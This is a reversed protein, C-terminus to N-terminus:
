FAGRNLVQRLAHAMDKLTVPKKLFVVDSLDNLKKGLSFYGSCLVIPMEPRLERIKRTLDDGTMLPMTYDTIVVDVAAPNEMFAALASLGSLFGRVQYGLGELREKGSMVLAEEDDVFLVRESGRPLAETEKEEEAIGTKSDLAPFLLTLTTGVGPESSVDINGDLSKVIGHVVSLGLGTGEGQPKTTFFPDFIRDLIEAPIGGGTDSIKLRLYRGPPLDTKQTETGEGTIEDLTVDLVGGTEKMAYGANTCLNVIVQHIQTPDGLIAATSELHERIAITAPLSARLLKLAEKVVYKPIIPKQGADSKRSFALIHNVLDRARKAANLIETLYRACRASDGLSVVTLETYGFVASLINNFDHAIGGALTGIAEMKESQRIRDQMMLERTMDRGIGLFCSIGGSSDLVPTIALDMTFRTSDSRGGTIRGGWKKKELVTKWVEEQNIPDIGDLPLHKGILEPISSDIIAAMAPNAFQVKRDPGIIIFAEDAQSVAQSLTALTKQVPVSVSRSFFFVSLVTLGIFLGSVLFIVNRNAYALAMIEDKDQTVGVSWGTLEVPAFGAIKRIGLYTYEETGTEQEAMRSTLVEVGADNQYGHTLILEANPHAIIMGNKDLMFAYGTKGFKMSVIYRTLFDTKVVGLVGGIFNGEKSFIPACLGFTPLKMAKSIVVEGIGIKGKRANRFYERDSIDIGIRNPDVSDARIIGEPDFIAIGEYDTGIVQYIDTLKANLDEYSGSRVWELIGEDAALASIIRLDKEVAARIMESLSKAIQVKQLKSIDELASASKLFTVAGIIIMPTLLILLGGIV